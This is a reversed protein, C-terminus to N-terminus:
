SGGPSLLSVIAANGRGALHSGAALVTLSLLALATALRFSRRQRAGDAATVIRRISVLVPARTFARLDDVSHFSTDLQESLIVAAVALGLSLLLGTLLFRPRNPAAPVESPVAPDVIRFQEGKRRQEMDEALQAEQYRKLLSQHYEKTTQYNRSIEQFEQERQPTNDLRVQYRAIAALLRQEDKKLAKIEADVETLAGRIRRAAPDFASPAPAAAGPGPVKDGVERELAAVELSLRVVEPYKDTYQLRLDRLEQRLRLLRLVPTDAVTAAVGAPAPITEM